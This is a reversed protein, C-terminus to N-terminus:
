GSTPTAEPMTEADPGAAAETGPDNSLFELLLLAVVLGVVCWLATTGTPHDFSLYGVAVVVLVAVRIASKNRALAVGFRGTNFGARSTGRRVADISRTLTGRAAAGSGRPASLWAGLAVTIAVIILGRLAFRIFSVLQDYIVGAAAQSADAPLADLYVPRLINLIAGLLLMSGAVAVGAALVVRRRDRAIAVAIALLGLGIAPLWTSLGDVFGVVRQVLGLDESQLVTFTATVEPILNAINFGADVLQTKITGIITALQITVTGKDVVVAGNDDGTLAAVLQKHAERNADIWAQEFADSEVFKLIQESVFNRVASSLPGVALKLTSAAREPLGQATLAAVLDDTADEVNLYSFIVEEVRAAIAKQVDPDSALPGVTELYRDTDQIQGNAWTSLVSLPALLAVVLVLFGAVLPRWWGTRSQQESPLQAELAAVQSRLRELEAEKETPSPVDPTPDSGSM